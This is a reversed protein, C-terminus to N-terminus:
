TTGLGAERGLRAAHARDAAGIKALICSVLNAVTKAAIGLKRGIIQNGLDAAILDLVQRERETLETFPPDRLVPPAQLLELVKAAVGPGFVAQGHMVAHIAAIVDDGDVDKLLYGRAGARIAALISTDDDSMTLAIVAPKPQLAVLRRTADVGNMRPMGLDMLVVEPRRDRAVQLAEVGDSAVGVVHIDDHTALLARIGDRVVAHDDVVM